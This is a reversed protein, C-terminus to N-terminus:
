ERLPRGQRYLEIGRLIRQSGDQAGGALLIRMAEEVTDAAKQFDGVEAYAAALVELSRPDKHGTLECAKEALRLAQTGDRIQPDNHTALIWGLDRLVEVSDPENELARNLHHVAESPTGSELLLRALERHTEARGPDIELANRFCAIARDPNGMREEIIGLNHYARVYSPDSRVIRSLEQSAEELQGSRVLLSALNNRADLYDPHIRLVERYEALAEGMRGGAALGVAYNYRVLWAEPYCVINHRVLTEQNRYIKSQQWTLCSLALLVIGGMLQLVRYGFGGARALLSFFTASCFAFVAISPLYQFRDAVFSLAMFGFDVFGLTPSLTIVYCSFAVLPGKGLRKRQFWLSLFLAFATLPYLFQIWSRSDVGWKPYVAVLSTPWFLKGLYFWFARGAVLMRDLASLGHEIVERRQVLRVDFLAITAGVLLFPLVPVINRWDLRGGRWWLFLLLILPLTVTSSKALMGCLFFALSPIYLGVRREETFRFYFRFSLLYFLGSLVNKREVIWAVSEVHVPHVVFLAAAWWAGPIGLRKLIRWLLAANAAHLLINTLHYGLANLGWLRHEVWFSTYVIPWYHGQPTHHPDSWIRWLGSLTQLNPNDLISVDDDWIFGCRLAPGYAALALGFLVAIGFSTRQVQSM